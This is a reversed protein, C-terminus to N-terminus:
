SKSQPPAQDDAAPTESLSNLSSESLSSHGNADISDLLGGSRRRLLRLILSFCFAVTILLGVLLVSMILFVWIVAMDVEFFRVAVWVFAVAFFSGSLVRIFLPDRIIKLHM